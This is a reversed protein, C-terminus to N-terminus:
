HLRSSIFDQFITYFKSYKRALLADRFHPDFSIFFVKELAYELTELYTKPLSKGRFGRLQVLTFFLM